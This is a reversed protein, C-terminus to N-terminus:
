FSSAKFINWTNTHTRSPFIIDVGWVDFARM